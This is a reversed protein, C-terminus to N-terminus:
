DNTSFEAFIDPYAQIAELLEVTPSGPYSAAVRGGAEYFGRAIAQNGTIVKREM